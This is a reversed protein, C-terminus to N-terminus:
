ARHSSGFLGQGGHQYGQEEFTSCLGLDQGAAILRPHVTHPSEKSLENKFDVLDSNFIM